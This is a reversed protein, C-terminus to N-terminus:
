YNKFKWLYKAKKKHLYYFPSDKGFSSSHKLNFFNEKDKGCAVFSHMPNKTRKFDKRKLAVKALSGTHPPTNHYDFTIGKCFAFNFTPIVLTGNLGIKELILDIFLNIDFIENKKRYLNLLSSVDSVLMLTDGKNINLDKILYKVEIM